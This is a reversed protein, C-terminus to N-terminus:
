AHNYSHLQCLLNMNLLMCLLIYSAWIMSLISATLEQENGEPSEGIIVIALQTNHIYVNIIIIFITITDYITFLKCSDVTITIKCSDSLGLLFPPTYLAFTIKRHSRIM